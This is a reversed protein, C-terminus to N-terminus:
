QDWIEMGQIVCGEGDAREVMKGVVYVTEGAKELDELVEEQSEPSVILVMGLGTNFVRAFEDNDMSGAKKLWKFVSPIPWTAADLESALNKDHMRPINELLGGGTIHAAGKILGNKVVGLVSRVYIRTPELLAEGVSRGSGQEWPAPDSYRLGQGEVIKRILSFGNSHCGSSALGVLIDGARMEDKLPLMKDGERIAGIATGCVDYVGDKIIGRIEATEGGVLACNALKCAACIGRIVSAATSIDLHACSYIDAMMLPEAGQCIIDNYLMAALDQGITDHKGVAQAILLKTGVGDSSVVLTPPTTYGAAELDFMAGFGGLETSAGPRDTSRVYGSIQKVLTNGAEISVGASAYVSLVDKATTTTNKLHPLAKHGIDTRYHMGKFTISSILKYASQLAAELTPGTSTAAFVRGGSTLLQGASDRTTGAYFIHDTEPNIASHDISILDDKAFPGPYGSAAAIVTVATANSCKVDVTDLYNDTCAVMVELLDSEMLPLLTEIEPDGGRTNYELVNIEGNDGLMLGTFLWGCFPMRERRLADITPQLITEHIKTLLADSIISKPLPSYVGMGGTNPGSDGDGAAKHDQGVPLSKITYADCFSIISVEHGSLYQEIVVENGAGGFKKEIMLDKLGEHAEEKTSPLLVGKGAALGSAKLCTRFNVEDLYMKASEYDNHTQFKATPISNRIMFNKSFAKSGELRAARISPAFCRIGVARFYDAIGNCIPVEPGVVVLNISKDTAFRVLAPFDDPSVESKPVIETKPEKAIGPNGPSAYTKELLPSQALKWAIAHERGGSGVLLVRYRENKSAM